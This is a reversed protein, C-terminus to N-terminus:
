VYYVNLVITFLLKINTDIVLFIKGSLSADFVYVGSLGTNGIKVPMKLYDEDSWQSRPKGFLLQEHGNGDGIGIMPLDDYDAGLGDTILEGTPSVCGDPSTWQIDKYLFIVYAKSSSSAIVAQYTNQQM